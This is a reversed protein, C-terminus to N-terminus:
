VGPWRRRSVVPYYQWYYGEWTREFGLLKAVARLNGGLQVFDQLVNEGNALDAQMTFNVGGTLEAGLKLKVKGALVEQELKKGLYAYASGSCSVAPVM